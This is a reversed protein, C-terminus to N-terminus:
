LYNKNELQPDISDSTTAVDSTYRHRIQGNLGRSPYLQRDFFLMLLLRAM